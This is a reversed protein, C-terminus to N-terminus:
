LMLGREIAREMETVREELTKKPEEPEPKPPRETPTIGVMIGEEIELNCYPCCSLVTSELHPPVPIWGNGNWNEPYRRHSQAELSKTEINVITSM